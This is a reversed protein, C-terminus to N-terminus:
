RKRAQCMMDEVAQEAHEKVRESAADVACDQCEYAHAAVSYAQLAAEILIDPRVGAEVAWRGGATYIAACVVNLDKEHEVLANIKTALANARQGRDDMM